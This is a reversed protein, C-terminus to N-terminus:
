KIKKLTFPPFTLIATGYAIFLSSGLDFGVAFYLASLMLFTTLLFFITNKKM